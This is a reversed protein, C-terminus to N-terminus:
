DCVLWFGINTSENSSIRHASRASSALNIWDGGRGIHGIGSAAGMPDTQAAGPYDEGYWGDYWDWCWEDVNGHM